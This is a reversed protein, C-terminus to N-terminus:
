EIVERGMYKKFSEVYTRNVELKEGDNLILKLKSFPLISMRNIMHTNVVESKNIRFFGYELFHELEFLKFATCYSERNVLVYVKGVEAYFYSISEINVQLTEYNDNTVNIIKRTKNSPVIEFEAEELVFELENNKYANTLIDFHTKSVKIKM